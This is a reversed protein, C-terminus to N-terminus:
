MKFDSDTIKKNRLYSTVSIANELISSPNKICDFYIINPSIDITSTFNIIDFFGKIDNLRSEIDKAYARAAIKIKIFSDKVHYDPAHGSLCVFQAFNKALLKKPITLIQSESHNEESILCHFKPLLDIDFNGDDIVAAFESIQNSESDIKIAISVIM